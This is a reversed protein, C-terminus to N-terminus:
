RLLLSAFSNKTTELTFKGFRYGEGNGPQQGQHQNTMGSTVSANPVARRASTSEYQPRGAMQRTAAPTAQNSTSAYAFQPQSQSILSQSVQAGIGAYNRQSSSQTNYAQGTPIFSDQAPEAYAEAYTPQSPVVAARTGVHLSSQSNATSDLTHSSGTHAGIPDLVHAQVMVAPQSSAAVDGIWTAQAATDQPTTRRRNYEPYDMQNLLDRAHDQAVLPYSADTRASGDGDNSEAPTKKQEPMVSKAASGGLFSGAVLGIPGAVAFGAAMGAASGGAGALRKSNTSVYEGAAGVVGASFDGFAYKDSGRMSSGKAAAGKVSAVMGRSFDGAYRM